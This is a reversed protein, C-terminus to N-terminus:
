RGPRQALANSLTTHLQDLAEICELVSAQVPAAAGNFQRTLSEGVTLRLRAKVADLLSDWDEISVDGVPGRLMLAPLMPALQRDAGFFQRKITQLQRTLGGLAELERLTLHRPM